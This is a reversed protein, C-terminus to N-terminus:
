SEIWESPLFTWVTGVVALIACIIILAWDLFKQKRGLQEKFLQLHCALPLIASITFCSFSGLLAMVRHFGPILIAVLCVFLCLMTRFVIRRAKSARINLNFPANSFFVELILNAPNLTLGFKSIPNLVVTWVVLRTLFQNYHPNNVLNVIIEHHVSSGFMLYGGGAMVLYIVTTITYSYRLVAPFREPCKMDRYISAFVAHGAFGAMLLGFSIPISMPMTPWLNTPAPVLLSGPSVTTSLGNIIVVVVLAITSIIGIISTYALIGLPVWTSPILVIVGIVKLMNLNLTPYLAQISDAFVMLLAVSAALLETVLLVAMVVRGKNGFAAYGVDSLSIMSPNLDLCKRLLIATYRTLLCFVLLMFLGLVWGTIKFGYPLSLIGLGMLVNVANFVSQSFTSTPEDFVECEDQIPLLPKTEPNKMQSPEAVQESTTPLGMTCETPRLYEEGVIDEPDPFATALLQLTSSRHSTSLASDVARSARSRASRITYTSKYSSM